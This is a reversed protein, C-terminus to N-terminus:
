DRHLLLYYHNLYTTKDILETYVFAFFFTTAATRTLLGIAIMLASTVMVVFIVHLWFRPVVDVWTFWAYKFHFQPDVYLTDIWGKSWFRIAAYAMLLGFFIRFAALGAPDVQRSLRAIVRNTEM